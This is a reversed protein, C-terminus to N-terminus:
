ALDIDNWESHSDIGFWKPPIMDSNLWMMNYVDTDPM